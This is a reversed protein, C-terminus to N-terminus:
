KKKEPAKAPAEAAGAAPKNKNLDKVIDATIDYSPKAYYVSPVMLLNPGATEFVLDYSDANVRTVVAEKIEKLLGDRRRRSADELQKKTQQAKEMYDREQISYDNAKSQFLKGKEQKAKDSLEPKGLEERLKLIDEKM